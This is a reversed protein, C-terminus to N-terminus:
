KVKQPNALHNRKSEATKRTQSFLAPHSLTAANVQRNSIPLGGRPQAGRSLTTEHEGAPQGLVKVHCDWAEFSSCSLVFELAFASKLHAQKGSKAHIM